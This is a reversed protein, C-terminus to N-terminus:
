PEETKPAPCGQFFVLLRRDVFDHSPHVPEALESRVQQTPLVSDGLVRNPAHEERVLVPRPLVKPLPVLVVECRTESEGVLQLVVGRRHQPAPEPDRVAIRVVAARDLRLACPEVVQEVPAGPQRHMQYSPRGAPASSPMESSSSCPPKPETPVRKGIVLM